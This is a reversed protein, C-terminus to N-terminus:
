HEVKSVLLDMGPVPQCIGFTRKKFTFDDVLGFKLNRIIISLFTKYLLHAMRMGLCGRPGDSFPIFNSNSIKSKIGDLHTLLNLMKPIVYGNMIEDKLNCRMYSPSPPTIRLAEKFVCELFKLQDIEEFSPFHNPDIFVNLIEKRLQDQIDPNKALFYLTWSLVTSTTGHGALLLTM